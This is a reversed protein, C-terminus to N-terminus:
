LLRTSLIGLLQHPISHIALSTEEASSLYAWQLEVRNSGINGSKSGTEPLKTDHDRGAGLGLESIRTM